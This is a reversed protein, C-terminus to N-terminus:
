IVEDLLGQKLAEAGFLYHPYDDDLLNLWYAPDHYRLDESTNRAALFHAWDDTIHQNMELDAKQNRIDGVTVGHMGHVMIIDRESALRVDCHQLIIAGMSM